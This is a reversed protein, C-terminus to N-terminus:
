KEIILKGQQFRGSYKIRYFYIGNEFNRMDLGPADVNVLGTVIMEGITNFVEVQLLEKKLGTFIFSGNGPNPYANVVPIVENEKLGVQQGLKIVWIDEQGKNSTLDGNNSTSNGALVYAGDVTQQISNIMDVNTGGLCKQWELNGISDLKLVWGDGSGHHGTVDGDNSTTYGGIIFGGDTTQQVDQGLDLNSGGFAKQWIINGVSNLKIIWCDGYPHNGSINGNNSKSMGIVAYSSDVNQFIRTGSEYSSGGLSKQWQISGLSDTKIIWLDEQGHNGTVDGNTSSSYGSIIYGRDYTQHIFDGYDYGTGGYCKQWEVAGSNSLKVAWYDGGGGHNGIVDGNTSTSVGLAIFGGDHTQEISLGWDSSSGGLSKKWQINGLDDTKIVLYDDGGHNGSGVGGSQSRGIFVFGSDLTQKACQGEDTAFGGYCKEWQIAGFGDLKVLWYDGSGYGVSVDGNISGASGALIYGGDYTQQISNAVDRGGSGLSKQWQIVPVQAFTKVASLVIIIIIHVKRM